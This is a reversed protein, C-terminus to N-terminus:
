NVGGKELELIEKHLRAAEEYDENKVASQLKNKLDELQRKKSLKAKLSGPIKGTHVSNRHIQRLVETLQPEFTKYCNSCGLKGSRRFDSYSMGCVQCKTEERYATPIQFFDSNNFIDFIDFM